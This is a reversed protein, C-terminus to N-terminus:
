PLAIDFKAAIQEIFKRHPPPAHRRWATLYQRLSQSEDLKEVNLYTVAGWHEPATEFMKLLEVAVISNRSRDTANRSLPGANDRYWAALTKGDPLKAKAIRQDAYKALAKSYGKWNPYPPKTRWSEAMRRLAFLSATECLSEEFWKNRHVDRDYNCLIHCFEHAFQYAYQAWYLGGTSLRVRYEDKDSREFLVIPGGKPSVLIPRLSREPFYPWLSMATSDLVKQVDPLAAGWDAEGDPRIDLRRKGGEPRDQATAGAVACGAIIAIGVLRVPPPLSTGAWTSFRRTITGTRLTSTIEKAFSPTLCM